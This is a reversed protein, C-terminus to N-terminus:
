DETDPEWFSFFFFLHPSSALRKFGKSTFEAPSSLVRLSPPFTVVIAAEAPKFYIVHLIKESWSSIINSTLLLLFISVNIFSHLNFLESKFLWYILPLIVPSILSYESMLLFSFLIYWFRLFVTFTNSLPFNVARFVYLVLFM